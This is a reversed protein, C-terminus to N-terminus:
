RRRGVGGWGRDPSWSKTEGDRETGEKKYMKRHRSM